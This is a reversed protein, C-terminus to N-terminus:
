EGKLWAMAEEETKFFRATQNRVLSLAIKVFMRAVQTVGIVGVKDFEVIDSLEKIARRAGKDLMGGTVNQTLDAFLLKHEKDKFAEALEPMLRHVDESTLTDFTRIRVVGQDELCKIEYKM